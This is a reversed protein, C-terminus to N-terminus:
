EKDGLHKWIKGNMINKVTTKSVGFLTAIGQTTVVGRSHLRKIVIVDHEDLKSTNVSHGRRITGHNIADLMNATPTDYRLNTYHNNLKNGDNHCVQMGDPREGIFARAVLCHVMFTTSTKDGSTISVKKYGYRSLTPKIIRVVEDSVRSSNLLYSRIEGDESIEYAPYGDIRKWIKDM